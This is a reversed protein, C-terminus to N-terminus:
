YKYKCYSCQRNRIPISKKCNPCKKSQIEAKEEKVSITESVNNGVEIATKWIIFAGFVVFCGIIYPVLAEQVKVKGEVSGLIFVIGLIAGVVVSVCIAIALLIKYITTSTKELKDTDITDSAEPDEGAELFAQGDRVIDDIAYSSPLFITNITLLLITIILIASKINM